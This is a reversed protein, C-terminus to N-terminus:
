NVNHGMGDIFKVESEDIKGFYSYKVADWPRDKDDKGHLITLRSKIEPDYNTIALFYGGIGIAADVLNPQSFLCHISM